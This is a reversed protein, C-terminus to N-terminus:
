SLIIMDYWNFAHKLEGPILDWINGLQQFKAKANPDERNVDPHTMRSLQRYLKKPSISTPDLGLERAFNELQSLAPNNNFNTKKDDEENFFGGDGGGYYFDNFSEARTRSKQGFVMFLIEKGIDSIISEIEKFNLEVGFKKMIRIWDNISDMLMMDTFSWQGTKAKLVYYAIVTYFFDPSSKQYGRGYIDNRIKESDLVWKIEDGSTMGPGTQKQRRNPRIYGMQKIRGLVYEIDVSKNKIFDKIQEFKNKEEDEQQQLFPFTELYEVYKDKAKQGELELKIKNDFDKLNHIGILNVSGITRKRSALPHDIGTELVASNPASYYVGVPYNGKYPGENIDIKYLIHESDWSYNIENLLSKLDDDRKRYDYENVFPGKYTPITQILKELKPKIYQTLYEREDYSGWPREKTKGKTSIRIITIPNGDHNKGIVFEYIPFDKYERNFTVKYSDSTIGAKFTRNVKTKESHITGDVDVDLVIEIINKEIPFSYKRRTKEERENSMTNKYPYEEGQLVEREKPPETKPIENNPIDQQNNRDKDSNTKLIDTNEVGLSEITSILTRKESDSKKDYVSKNMIQVWYGGIKYPKFGLQKLKDKIHFTNGEIVLVQGYKWDKIEITSAMRLKNAYLIKM